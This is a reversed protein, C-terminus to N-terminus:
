KPAATVQKYVSTAIPSMMANVHVPGPPGHHAFCFIVRKLKLPRPLVDTTYITM